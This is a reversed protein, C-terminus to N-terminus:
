HDHSAGSKDIDAKIIYSNETVYEAGAPIGGLVEVWEGAQRGLELMRVEYEDQIKIYVVTFDRFPQLGSRKVVRQALFSDIMIDAQIFQGVTFLQKSNDVFVRYTKAQEQNLEILSDAIMGTYVTDETVGQITVVAGVKIKKREDQPFVALEAVLKQTNTITLLTQDRAQEGVTANLNTIIGETPAYIHYPQLSENSEIVFLLQKKKVYQGLNVKVKKIQGAFRASIRKKANAPLVLKGFVTLTQNLTQPEVFATKIEMANAIATEIKTRGEFNDYQWRYHQNQYVAELTVIFSHPEYIEMNGRLYDGEAYFQINDVVNGLRTLTVTIDVKNPAIAQNNKTVWIRFEPPVGTEFIALEIAFDGQELMRGNHIGKKPQAEMTSETSLAFSTTHFFPNLLLFLATFFSYFFSKM